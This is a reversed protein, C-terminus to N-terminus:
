HAGVTEGARYETHHHTLEFFADELSGDLNGLEVLAIGNVSAHYGITAADMGTVVFAGDPESDISVHERALAERLATPQAARVRAREHGPRDVIEATTGEAIVHGRGIVVLRDAVHAMEAIVHSSLFVTRGEAALGRLLRRIWHIGDPDLGNVPEDFILTEPDGLLAAAIGLRQRMGLSFTDIRHGAVDTLGVIGLVTDVRSNELRNSAALWRLHNAATRGGEIASADLLAGVCRLPHELDAYRRGYVTVTGSTPVDLGLIMRMTTSKGAGNPGLFGTVYGPRVTFSADNVAVTKAFRRTLHTAQIM